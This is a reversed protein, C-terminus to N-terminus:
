RKTKPDAKPLYLRKLKRFQHCPFLKGVWLFSSQPQTGKIAMNSKKPVAKSGRFVPRVSSTLGRGPLDQRGGAWGRTQVGAWCIRRVAKNRSDHIPFCIFSCLTWLGSIHLGLQERQFLMYAWYSPFFLSRRQNIEERFQLMVSHRENCFYKASCLNTDYKM